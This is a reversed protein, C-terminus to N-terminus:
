QNRYFINKVNLFSMKFMLQPKVQMFQYKNSEELSSSSINVTRWYWTGIFLINVKILM